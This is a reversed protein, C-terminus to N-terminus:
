TTHCALRDMPIHNTTSRARDLSLHRGPPCELQCLLICSPTLHLARTRCGPADFMFGPLPKELGVSHEGGAVHDGVDGGRRTTFALWGDAVVDPIASCTRRQHFICVSLPIDADRHRSLAKEVTLGDIHGRNNSATSVAAPHSRSEYAQPYRTPPRRDLACRCRRTAHTSTTRHRRRRRMNRDTTCHLGDVPEPGSARLSSPRDPHGRSEALSNNTTQRSRRSAQTAYPQRHPLTSDM